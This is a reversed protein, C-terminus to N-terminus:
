LLGAELLAERVAERDGGELRRLPKRPYGGALGALDMAAKVGPVGYAGSIRQNAERMRTEYARGEDDQGRLGHNWLRLGVEPRVNGLSVIGGRVGHGMSTYFFSASGALVCFDAGNYFCFNEIGAPASDKMGAINPHKALAGVTEPSLTVGTFGPANYLLVPIEVSEACEAFYGYLVEHTMQKRFYSPSLLTAFDAGAERAFRMFEVTLPTSDYICGAMAVQDPKKRAMITLLVDRKESERLCRNEGNSGLALYGHIDTGAYYDLNAGLAGFDVSMDENFPTTLPLFAGRLKEANTTM